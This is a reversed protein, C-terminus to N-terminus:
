SYKSIEDLDKIIQEMEEHSALNKIKDKVITYKNEQLEQDIQDPNLGHEVENLLTGVRDRILLKTNRILKRKQYFYYGFGLLSFLFVEIVINTWSM